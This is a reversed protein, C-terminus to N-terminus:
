VTKPRQEGSIRSSSTKPTIYTETDEILDTDLFLGLIQSKREMMAESDPRVVSSSNIQYTQAKDDVSITRGDRDPPDVFENNTFINGEVLLYGDRERLHWLQWATKRPRYIITKCTLLHRSALMSHNQGGGLPRM